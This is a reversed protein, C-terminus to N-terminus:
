KKTRKKLILKEAQIMPLNQYGETEESQVEVQKAIMTIIRGTVSKNISESLGRMLEAANDASYYRGHTNLAICMLQQQAEWDDKVGYGVVDIKLDINNAAINQALECPDGGCTELGDSILIVSKEGRYHALDNVAQSLSYTIPTFGRPLIKYIESIILRRNNTGPIVLLKSDSCDLYPNGKPESSGYVRLGLNVNSDAKKLVDELVRKAIHIKTEGLIREEMSGSADFVILVTRKDQSFIEQKPKKKGLFPNEIQSFTATCSFVFLVIFLIFNNKRILYLINQRKKIGPLSM